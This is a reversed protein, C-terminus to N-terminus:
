AKKSMKSVGFSLTNFIVNKLPTLFTLNLFYSTLLVINSTLTFFNMKSRIEYNTSRKANPVQRGAPLYCRFDKNRPVLSLISAFLGVGGVGFAFAPFRGFFGSVYIYYYQLAGM